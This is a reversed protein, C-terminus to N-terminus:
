QIGMQQWGDFVASSCRQAKSQEHKKMHPYHVLHSKSATLMVLVRLTHQWLDM